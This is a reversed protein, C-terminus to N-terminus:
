ASEKVRRLRESFPARLSAAKRELLEQVKALDNNEATDAAMVKRVADRLETELSIAQKAQNEM